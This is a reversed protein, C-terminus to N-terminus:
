TSIDCPAAAIATPRIRSLSAPMAKGRWILITRGRRWCGSRGVDGAGVNESSGSISADVISVDKVEARFELVGFLGLHGLGRITLHFITHRNGDFIGTFATGQFSRQTDNRDPAIVARGFVERGPLNPDLDINATLVFHKDYDGYAEGLAILDAATAIQYPDDATGGGGSYKAHVSLNPLCVALLLRITRAVPSHTRATM